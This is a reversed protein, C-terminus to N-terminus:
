MMAELLRAADKLKGTQTLRGKLGQLQKAKVTVKSQPKGPAQLKPAAQVKPLVKQVEQAAQAGRQADLALLIIRHDVVGSIEQDNYGYRDKLFKTVEDRKNDSWDSVKETLRSAQEALYGQLYQAHQAQQAQWANQIQAQTQQRVGHLQALKGQIESQRAVWEAPNSQRLEAMQPSHMEALIQQETWQIATAADQAAQQLQALQLDREAQIARRQEALETTKQRYDREFQNGKQADALSILEEQGNVKVRMKLNAMLTDTDVGLARAVDEISELTVEEESEAEPETEAVEEEEAEEEPAEPVVDELDHEDDIGLLDGAFGELATVAESLNLSEGPEANRNAM